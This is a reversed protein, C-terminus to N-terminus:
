EDDDDDSAEGDSMGGFSLKAIKVPPGGRRPKKAARVQAEAQEKEIGEKIEKFSSASQLGAAREALANVDEKSAEFGTNGNLAGKLRELTRVGSDLQKELAKEKAEAKARTKTDQETSGRNRKKNKGM